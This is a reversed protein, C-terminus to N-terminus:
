IPLTATCTEVASATPKALEPQLLERASELHALERPLLLLYLLAISILYVTSAPCDPAMLSIKMAPVTPDEQLTLAITDLIAAVFM